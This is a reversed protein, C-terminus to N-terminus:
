SADYTKSMRPSSKGCSAIILDMAKIQAAINKQDKASVHKKIKSLHHRTVRLKANITKYGVKFKKAM